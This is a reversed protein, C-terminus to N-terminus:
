LVPTTLKEGAPFLKFDNVLLETVVKEYGDASDYKRSRLRGEVEICAGTTIVSLDPYKKGSWLVCNTWQTEENPTGDQTRTIANTAVSFNNVCRDGYNSIRM